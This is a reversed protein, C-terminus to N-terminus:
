SVFMFTSLHDEINKTNAQQYYSKLIIRSKSLVYRIQNCIVDFGSESHDNLGIEKKFDLGKIKGFIHIQCLGSEFRCLYVNLLGEETGAMKYEIENTFSNARVFKAAPTLSRGVVEPQPLLFNINYMAIHTPKGKDAHWPFTSM